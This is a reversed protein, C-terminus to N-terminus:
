STINPGATATSGPASRGRRGGVRLLVGEAAKDLLFRYRAPLWASDSKLTGLAEEVQKATLNVAQVSLTNAITQLWVSLAEDEALSWDRQQREVAEHLNAVSM